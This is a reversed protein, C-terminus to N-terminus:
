ELYLFCQKKEAIKLRGRNGLALNLGTVRIIKRCTSKEVLLEETALWSIHKELL